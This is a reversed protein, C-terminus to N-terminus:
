FGDIHHPYQLLISYGHFGCIFKHFSHIIITWNKKQICSSLVLFLFPFHSPKSSITSLNSVSSLNLTLYFKGVAFRISLHCALRRGDTTKQTIDRSDWGGRVRKVPGSWWQFRIDWRSKVHWLRSRVHGEKGENIEIRQKKKNKPQVRIHNEDEGKGKWEKIVLERQM